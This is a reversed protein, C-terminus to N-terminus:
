GRKRESKKKVVVVRLLNSYKFNLSILQFHFVINFDRIFGSFTHLSNSVLYTLDLIEYTNVM